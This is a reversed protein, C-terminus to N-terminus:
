ACGGIEFPKRNMDPNITTQMWPSVIVQPNPPESRLQLNANRVPKNVSNFSINHISPFFDKVELNNIVSSNSDESKSYNSLFFYQNDM